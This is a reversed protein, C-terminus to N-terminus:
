QYIEVDSNVLKINIFYIPEFKLQLRIKALFMM